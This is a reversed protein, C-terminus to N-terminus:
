QQQLGSIAARTGPGFSGDIAGSYEGIAKLEVQFAKRFRPSWTSSNNLMETKAAQTGAFISRLVLKAAQGPSKKVGRGDDHLAALNFLANGNGADAGAIYWKVAEAVNQKIGEGLAHMIALNNMADGNGGKAARRYWRLATSLNKRVGAIGREFNRGVLFQAEADGAEAAKLHWSHAQRDDDGVGIGLSLMNGYSTMARIAGLDAAKKYAEAAQAFSREAFLQNAIALLTAPDSSDQLRKAAEPEKGDTDLEKIYFHDLLSSRAWPLQQQKTDEFVKRRVSTMLLSIELGPTEINDLLAKAFPSNRGEGDLAVNGPETSFAIFTNKERVEQRALGKSQAALLPGIETNNRFPNDRCADLIIILKRSKSRFKSLILDISITEKEIDQAKNLKADAPILYNKGNIQLAHGAYYFIINDEPESISSFTELNRKTSALNLNENLKVSYGIKRLINGIDQADNKANPLNEAVSYDSNGLIFARNTGAIANEFVSVILACSFIFILFERKIKKRRCYKLVILNM